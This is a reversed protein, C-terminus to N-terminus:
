PNGEGVRDRVIAAFRAIPDLDRLAEVVRDMVLAVYEHVLV